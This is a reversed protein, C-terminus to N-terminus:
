YWMYPNYQIPPKLHLNMFEALDETDTDSCFPIQTWDRNENTPPWIRVVPFVKVFEALFEDMPDFSTEYIAFVSFLLEGIVFLTTHIDYPEGQKTSYAIHRFRTDWGKGKYRGAFILWGKPPRLTEKFLRRQEDTTTMTAPDTYESTMNTMVMWPCILLQEESTLTSKTGLILESIIPKAQEQIGGMWGGNCEHCVSRRSVTRSHGQRVKFKTFTIKPATQVDEVRSRFNINKDSHTRPPFLADLWQPWHHEHSDQPNDCFACPPARQPSRQKNAM